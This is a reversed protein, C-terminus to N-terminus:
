RIPIINMFYLKNTATINDQYNIMGHRTRDHTIYCITLSYSGPLSILENQKLTQELEKSKWGSPPLGPPALTTVEYVPTTSLYAPDQLYPRAGHLLLPLHYITVTM